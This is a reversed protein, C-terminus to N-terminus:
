QEEESDIRDQIENMHRLINSNDHSVMSLASSSKLRLAGKADKDYFYAIGTLLSGHPQIWASVIFKWKESDSDLVTIEVYDDTVFVDDADFDLVYVDSRKDYASAFVGSLDERISLRRYGVDAGHHQYAVWDGVVVQSIESAPLMCSLSSLLFFTFVFRCNMSIGFYKRALGAFSDFLSQFKVWFGDM